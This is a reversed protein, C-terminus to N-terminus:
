NLAHQQITLNLIKEHIKNAKDFMGLKLHADYDIQYIQKMYELHKWIEIEKPLFVAM